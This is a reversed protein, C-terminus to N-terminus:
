CPQCSYRSDGPNAMWCGQRGGTSCQGCCNPSRGQALTYCTAIGRLPRSCEIIKPSKSLGSVSTSYALPAALVFSSVLVVSFILFRKM